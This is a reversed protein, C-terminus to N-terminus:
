LFVFAKSSICCVVRFYLRFKHSLRSVQIVMNITSLFFKYRCKKKKITQCVDYKKVIKLEKFFCFKMERSKIKLIGKTCRTEYFLPLFTLVIPPIFSLSPLTKSTTFSSKCNIILIFKLKLAIQFVLFVYIIQEM